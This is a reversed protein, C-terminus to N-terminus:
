APTLYRVPAFSNGALLDRCVILRSDVVAATRHRTAAQYDESKVMEAFAQPSPYYAAFALDWTEEGSGILVGQPQAIWTQRGGVRRFVPEASASYKEYAERGSIPAAGAEVDTDQYQAQERFKLLNLMSVPQGAPLGYIAKFQERTPNIFQM